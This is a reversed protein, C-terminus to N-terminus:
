KKEKDFIDLIRQVSSRSKRTEETADGIVKDVTQFIKRTETHTEVSPGLVPSKKKKWPLIRKM